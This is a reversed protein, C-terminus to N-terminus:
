VGNIETFLGFDQVALDNPTPIIISSAYHHGRNAQYRPHRRSHMYVVQNVTGDTAISAMGNLSTIKTSTRLDETVGDVHGEWVRFPIDFTFLGHFLSHPEVILQTGWADLIADGEGLVIHNQKYSM